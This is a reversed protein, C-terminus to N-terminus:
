KKTGGTAKKGEKDKEKNDKKESSYGDKKNTETKRGSRPESVVTDEDEDFTYRTLDEEFDVDEIDRDLRTEAHENLNRSGSQKGVITGKKRPMSTKDDDVLGGQSVSDEEKDIRDPNADRDKENETFDQAKM